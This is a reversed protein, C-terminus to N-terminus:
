CEAVILAGDADGVVGDLLSAAFGDVHPEVPDAVSYALPVEEDLPPFSCVVEGIEEGFREWDVGVTRYHREEDISWGVWCIGVSLSAGATTDRILSCWM